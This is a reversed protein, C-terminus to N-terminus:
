SVQDIVFGTAPVQAAPLVPVSVTTSIAAGASNVGSVTLNFSTATDSAAVAVQASLGDAAATITVNSDDASWSPVNGAQLASGAPDTVATFNGVGGVQVGTIAMEDCELQFIQFGRAPFPLRHRLLGLIEDLTESIRKLWTTQTHRMALIICCIAALAICSYQCLSFNMM